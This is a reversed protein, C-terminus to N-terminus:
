QEVSTEVRFAPGHGAAQGGRILHPTMVILLTAYNSQVLQATVNNLGPIESLGPTGSVARSESRNIQSALEAAEGEKLTVVGSYAQNNLIPNGDLFQGSLATLKMDVTLAVTDDRLVKPTIKLSLGLDEYQIMPITPIAGGVSALLSTLASSSGAGSIGPIAPLNAAPSSYSSTQIPYKEGLRLTGAEGDGLRLQVSDLARSDSSNLNLNLTATGPILASQTLGGGFFAFGGSLLSSSIAGSAALIAIIALPDNASALGSSIIQQVLSQNANLISQEEAYVNFATMSQPLQAGTNLAMSHALQVVRVDVIVQDDGALLSRMNANFAEISRPDGRLTLTGAAPDPAVQAINFVNRALNAVQTQEDSTLGSLYITELERHAFQERNVRTDRAVLVRHSDLPVYFTNTVLGLVRAATQFDVNDVDLRVPQPRVSDDILAVIGYSNFVRQIVQRADSRVHFSHLDRSALLPEISALRAASQHYLPQPLGRLVDDSLDYLHQTVEPNTPDLKYAHAIAGRAAAENGTFRDKAASQILAEVAHSRAVQAAMRYNANAPDLAAAQEYQQLAPEFQGKEYLKSASLYLHIARRRDRASPPKSKAAASKPAAAQGTQGASPTAPGSTPTQPQMFAPFLTLLVVAAWSNVRAAWTSRRAASGKM